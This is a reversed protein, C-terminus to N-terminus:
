NRGEVAQAVALLRASLRLGRADAAPLSVTFRVRGGDLVFNLVAGLRHGNPQETVVLVPGPVSAALDRVRAERSAGILLVHVGVAGEGERLRRVVVPRGELRRGGAIQDLDAAVAENGTVAIVLPDDGRQFTGAPWDVFGAIKYLFAAKVASESAGGPAQALAPSLLGHWACALLLWFRWRPLLRDLPVAAAM